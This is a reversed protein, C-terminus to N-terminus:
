GLLAHHQWRLDLSPGLDAPFSDFIGLFPTNQGLFASIQGLNAKNEIFIDSKLFNQLSMNRENQTFNGCKQLFNLM